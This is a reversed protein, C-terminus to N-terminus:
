GYHRFFINTAYKMVLKGNSDKSNYEEDRQHEYSVPYHMLYLDIYELGLNQLSKRCAYEVKDPAHFTNWLQLFM